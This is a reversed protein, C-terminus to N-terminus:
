RSMHPMAVTWAWGSLFDICQQADTLIAGLLGTIWKFLSWLLLASWGPPRRCRGANLAVWPSCLEGAFRMGSLAVSWDCFHDARVKPGLQSHRVVSRINSGLTLFDAVDLLEDLNGAPLIGLTRVLM